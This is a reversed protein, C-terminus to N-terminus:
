KGRQIGSGNASRHSVGGISHFLSSWRIFFKDRMNSVRSRSLTEISLAQLRAWFWDGIFVKRLSVSAVGFFNNRIPTLIPSDSDAFFLVIQARGTLDKAALAQKANFPGPSCDLGWVCWISNTPFIPTGLFSFRPRQISRWFNPQLADVYGLGWHSANLSEYEGYLWMFLLFLVTQPLLDFLLMFCRTAAHPEMHVSHWFFWATVGWLVVTTASGCLVISVRMVLWIPSSGPLESVGLFSLAPLIKVCVVRVQHHSRGLDVM